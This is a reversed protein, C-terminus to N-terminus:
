ITLEWEGGMKEIDESKLFDSEPFLDNANMTYDKEPCLGTQNIESLTHKSPM